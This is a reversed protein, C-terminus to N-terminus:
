VLYKYFALIWIFYLINPIILYFGISITDAIMSENKKSKNKREKIKIFLEYIAIALLTIIISCITVYEGTFIAMTIILLLISYVYRNIAKKKLTMTDLLLIIIYLILYIGYRYISTKEIICLYVIYLISIIVGYMSVSKSIKRNKKDIGAVLMIFTFYLLIFIYDMIIVWNLNEISLGMLYAVTLFFVGSILEIIIYRPSIRQKCYRCKGGLITYSLIPILDFFVLKHNCNPCYSRTHTIDQKKPIRYIALTFFSGFLTGTIFVLIYLVINIPM